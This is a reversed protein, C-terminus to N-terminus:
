AGAEVAARTPIETRRCGFPSCGPPDEEWDALNVPSGDITLDLEAQRQHWEAATVKEIPAEALPVRSRHLYATGRLKTPAAPHGHRIREDFHIAEAWEKPHHDRLSRWRANGSFPCGVCASRTTNARGHRELIAQCGQRTLGLDILPHRHETYAPTDELVRRQEDRSFGVLQVARRGKPVRGVNGDADIPAGLLARLMAMLPRVKYDGTCQRKLIAQGGAHTRVHLPLTAYHGGDTRLADARIDGATVRILPIGMPHALEHEVWEVNDYVAQPEWQTDAMLMVDPREIEGQAALLALTTSQVGAGLMLAWLPRTASVDRLREVIRRPPLQQLTSM